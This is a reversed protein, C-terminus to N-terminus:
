SLQFWRGEDCYLTAGGHGGTIVIDEQGSTVIRQGLEESQDKITLAGESSAKFIFLTQSENGGGLTNLIIDGASTDVRLVSKNEILFESYTGPVDLTQKKLGLSNRVLVEPSDKEGLILVRRLGAEDSVKVEFSISSSKAEDAYAEEAAVIIKAGVDDVGTYDKSGRFEFTGLTDGLELPVPNNDVDEKLYSTKFVPSVPTLLGITRTALIEDEKFIAIKKSGKIIEFASETGLIETTGNLFISNSVRLPTMIEVLTENMQALVVPLGLRSQIQLGQTEVGISYTVLDLTNHLMLQSSGASEIRAAASDLHFINYGNCQFNVGGNGPSYFGTSNDSAFSVALLDPTGDALFVQSANILNIWSSLFRLSESGMSYTDSTAPVVDKALAEIDSTEKLTTQNEIAQLFAGQDKPVGNIMETTKLDVYEM